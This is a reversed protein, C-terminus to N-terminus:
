VVDLIGVSKADKRSYILRYYIKEWDSLDKVTVCGLSHKGVHLVAVNRFGVMKRLTSALDAPILTARELIDFVEASTRPVELEFHATVWNALDIAQECARQLNLVVIDQIDLDVLSPERRAVDRVRAICRRMADIKLLPTEM